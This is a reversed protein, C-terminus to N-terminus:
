RWRVRCQGIQWRRRRSAMSGSVAGCAGRVARCVSLAASGGCAGSAAAPARTGPVGGPRRRRLVVGGTRVGARTSRHVFTRGRCSWRGCGSARGCHCARLQCSRVPTVPTVSDTKRPPYKVCKRCSAFKIHAIASGQFYMGSREVRAAGRRGPVPRVTGFLGSRLRVRAGRLGVRRCTRARPLATRVGQPRGGYAPPLGGPCGDRVAGPVFFIASSGASDLAISRRVRM